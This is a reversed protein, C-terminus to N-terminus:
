QTKGRCQASRYHLWCAGYYLALEGRMGTLALTPPSESPWPVRSPREEPYAAPTVKSCAGGKRRPKPDQTTASMASRM